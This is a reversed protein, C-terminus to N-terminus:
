SSLQLRGYARLTKLRELTQIGRWEFQTIPTWILWSVEYGGHENQSDVLMDLQQEILADDYWSRALSSPTPAFDLPMAAESTEQAAARQGGLLKQGALARGLEAALAEARERQPVQDLFTVLARAQYLVDLADLGGSVHAVRELLRASAQWCFESARQLWAHSVGHKYLLGAISATPLLNGPQEAQDAQPRWWPARPYHTVDALVNPVGGDAATIEVLFPLVRAAIVPEAASIEDLVQLAFLSGLPQSVPGRFDPEIGHGYGGDDNQYAFLAQEVRQASDGRFLHAFRVRELLRASQWLSQEARELRKSDFTKM